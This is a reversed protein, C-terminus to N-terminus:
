GSSLRLSGANEVAEEKLEMVIVEASSIVDPWTGDSVRVQLSYSGPPTDAKLSIQGTSRNLM